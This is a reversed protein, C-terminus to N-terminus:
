VCRKESHDRKRERASRPALLAVLAQTVVHLMRRGGSMPREADREGRGHSGRTRSTRRVRRAHRAVQRPALHLRALSPPRATRPVLLNLKNDSLTPPAALFPRVALTVFFGVAFIALSLRVSQLVVGVVFAILQLSPFTPTLQTLDPPRTLSHLLQVCRLPGSSGGRASSQWTRASLTRDRRPLSAILPILPPRVLSPSFPRVIKGELSAKLQDLKAHVQDM